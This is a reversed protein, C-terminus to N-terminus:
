TRASRPPRDPLALALPEWREPEAAPLQPPEVAPGALTLVSMPAVAVCCPACHKCTATGSEGDAVREANGADHCPHGDSAALELAHGHSGGVVMHMWGGAAMGKMPLLLALLVILLSRGLGRM